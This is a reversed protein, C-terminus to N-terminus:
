CARVNVTNVGLSLGRQKHRKDVLVPVTSSNQQLGPGVRIAALGVEAGWEGDHTLAPEIGADLNM